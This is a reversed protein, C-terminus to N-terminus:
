FHKQFKRRVILHLTVRYFHACVSLIFGPGPSHFRFHTANAVAVVVVVTPVSFGWASLLLLLLLVLLLLLLLLEALQLVQSTDAVAPFPHLM